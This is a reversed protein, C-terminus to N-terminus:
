VFNLGELSEVSVSEQFYDKKIELACVNVLARLEPLTDNDCYCIVQLILETETKGKNNIWGGLVPRITFGGAVRALRAGYKVSDTIGHFLALFRRSTPVYLIIYDKMKNLRWHIKKIM